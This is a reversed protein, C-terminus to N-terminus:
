GPGAKKIEKEYEEPLFEKLLELRNQERQEPTLPHTKEWESFPILRGTAQDRVSEMPPVLQKAM